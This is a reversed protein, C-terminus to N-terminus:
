PVKGELIARLPDGSGPRLYRMLQRVARAHLQTQAVRAKREAEGQSERMAAVQAELRDLREGCFAERCAIALHRGGSLTLVGGRVACYRMTGDAECWRVVSAPLATLLDAHGPRLGFSGSEDMARVSRVGEVSVVSAEPTAISLHLGDNM